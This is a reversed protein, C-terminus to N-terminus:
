AETYNHPPIGVIYKNERITRRIRGRIANRDSEGPVSTSIMVHDEKM